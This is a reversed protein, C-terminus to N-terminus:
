RATRASPPAASPVLRARAKPAAQVSRRFWWRPTPPTSTPTTPSCTARLRQQRGLRQQHRRERHRRYRRRETSSDNVGVPADNIAAIAVMVTGSSSLAGGSGQTGSNGDSFTYGIQVTSAPADSTNAYAISQLVSDALASTANGNFTIALTGGAQVFTGVTTGNYVVNGSSLSLLGSGSFVDQANAGGNRGLTLTAGNYNNAADLEADSVTASANLVVAAGNEVYTPTPKSYAINVNDVFVSNTIGLAGAATFRVVTTASIFSSIDVSFSQYSSDNTPGEILGVQTFNIGDSSM